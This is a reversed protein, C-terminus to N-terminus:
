EEDPAKHETLPGMAEIQDFLADLKDLGPVEYGRRVLDSALERVNKGLRLAEALAAMSKQVLEPTAGSSKALSILELIGAILNVAQLVAAAIAAM